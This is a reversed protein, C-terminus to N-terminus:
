QSGQTRQTTVKGWIGKPGCFHKDATQATQDCTAEAYEANSGVNNGKHVAVKPPEPQKPACKCCHTCCGTACAASPQKNCWSASCVAQQNSQAESGSFHKEAEGAACHLQHIDRQKRCKFIHHECASCQWFSENSHFPVNAYRARAQSSIHPEGIRCCVCHCPHMCCNCDCFPSPRPEVKNSTAVPWIAATAPARGYAQRTENVAIM